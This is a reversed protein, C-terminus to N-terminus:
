IKTISKSNFTRYYHYHMSNIKDSSISEEIDFKNENINGWVVKWDGRKKMAM